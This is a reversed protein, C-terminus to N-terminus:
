LRKIKLKAADDNQAWMTVPWSKGNHDKHSERSTGNLYRTSSFYSTTIQIQDDHRIVHKGNVKVGTLFLCSASDIWLLRNSSSDTTDKKIVRFDRRAAVYGDSGAAVHLSYYSSSSSLRGAQFTGEVKCTKSSAVTVNNNFTSTGTVTLTGGVSLNKSSALTVNNNFTSAGTVTLTGGVTLNKGSALSANNNFTSTGTVTLTGGVSLNKSSALTVNNNFTSAGTVTLTGGVTLNKGSALSANNNFTSTGTVTLTGGVSLNKGSALTVNNNFTSAGDATLMNVSINPSRVKLSTTLYHDEGGISAKLTFNTHDNLAPSTWSGGSVPTSKETGDEASYYMTYTANRSGEWKLQVTQGRNVITSAPRLSHFYFTDDRKVVEVRGTRDQFGSTPNTSTRETVTLSVPGVASNIEIDALTLIVWWTGDFKATTEPKCTFVVKNPDNTDSTIHWQTGQDAGTVESAKTKILTPATTLASGQTGVPVSIEIQECYVPWSAGSVNQGFRLAITGYEHDAFNSILITSPKTQLEPKVWNTDSTLDRTM